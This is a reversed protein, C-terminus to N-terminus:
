TWTSTNRLLEILQPLCQGCSLHDCCSLSCNNTTDAIATHTPSEHRGGTKKEGFPSNKAGGPTPCPMDESLEATSHELSCASFPIIYRPDYGWDQPVVKGGSDWPTIKNRSTHTYTAIGHIQPRIRTPVGCHNPGCPFPYLILKTRLPCATLILM